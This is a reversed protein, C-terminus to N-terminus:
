NPADACRIPARAAIEEAMDADGGALVQRDIEKVHAALIALTSGFMRTIGRAFVGAGKAIEAFGIEEIPKEALLGM